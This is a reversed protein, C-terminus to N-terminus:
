LHLFNKLLSMSRKLYIVQYETSIVYQIGKQILRKTPHKSVCINGVPVIAQQKITDIINCDFQNHVYIILGGHGCCRKTQYFLKYDKLNFMRMEAATTNNLWCEQLCITSIPHTQNVKDIFSEFEDFKANISQINVSLVSLGAKTNLLKSFESEGYYSSQKIMDPENNDESDDRDDNSLLHILSTRDTLNVGDIFQNTEIM